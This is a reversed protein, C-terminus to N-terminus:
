SSFQSTRIHTHPPPCECLPLHLMYTTYRSTPLGDAIVHATQPADFDLHDCGELWSCSSVFRWRRTREELAYLDVGTLGSLAWHRTDGFAIWPMGPGGAIDYDWITTYRLAIKSAQSRFRLRVGASCLSTNWVQERLEAKAAAPMRAFPHPLQEAPFARGVVTMTEMAAWSFADLAPSVTQRSPVKEATDAAPPPPPPPPPLPSPPALSTPVPMQRPEDAAALLKPLLTRYHQAM